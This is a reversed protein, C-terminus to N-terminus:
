SRGQTQVGVQMSPIMDEGRRTRWERLKRTGRSQLYICVTNYASKFSIIFMELLKHAGYACSYASTLGGIMTRDDERGFANCTSAIAVFTLAAVITPYGM